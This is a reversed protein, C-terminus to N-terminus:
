ENMLKASPKLDCVSVRAHACAAQLPAAWEVRGAPKGYMATPVDSFPQQQSHQEDGRKDGRTWNVCFGCKVMHERTTTLAAQLVARGRKMSLHAKM